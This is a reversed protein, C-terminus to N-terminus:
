QPSKAIWYRLVKNENTDYSCMLEVPNFAGRRDQLLLKDSVNSTMGPAVYFTMFQSFREGTMGNDAWKFGYKSLSKVYDDAGRSCASATIAGYKDRLSKPDEPAVASNQQSTAPPNPNAPTSKSKQARLGGYVAIAFIVAIPIAIGAARIKWRRANRGALEWDRAFQEANFLFTGTEDEASWRVAVLDAKPSSVYVIGPLGDAKRKAQVGKPPYKPSNM